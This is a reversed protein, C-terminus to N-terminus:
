NTPKAPKLVASNNAPPAMTPAVSKMSPTKSSEAGVTLKSSNKELTKNGIGKVKVLDEVSSFPGNMERYQIIAAAKTAGVGDLTALEEATATNIDITQATSALAFLAFLLVLCIQYLSKM